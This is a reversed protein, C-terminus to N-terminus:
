PLWFPKLQKTTEDIDWGIRQDDVVSGSMVIRNKEWDSTKCWFGGEFMKVSVGNFVATFLYKYDQSQINGIKM